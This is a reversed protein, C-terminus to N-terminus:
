LNGNLFFFTFCNLYKRSCFIYLFYIIVIAAKIFFVETYCVPKLNACIDVTRHARPIKHHPLSAFIRLIATSFTAFYDDSCQLIYPEAVKEIWHFSENFTLVDKNIAKRPFALFFAVAAVFFAPFACLGGQKQTGQLTYHLMFFCLYTEIAIDRSM